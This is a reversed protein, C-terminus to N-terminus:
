NVFLVALLAGIITIVFSVVKIIIGMNALKKDDADKVKLTIQYAIKNSFILLILGLLMVIIGSIVYPSKFREWNWSVISAFLLSNYCDIM